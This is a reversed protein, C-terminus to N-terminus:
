IFFAKKHKKETRIQKIKILKIEDKSIKQCLLIFFKCFLTKYYMVFM